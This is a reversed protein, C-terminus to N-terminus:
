LWSQGNGHMHRGLSREVYPLAHSPFWDVWLAQVRWMTARLDSDEDRFGLLHLFGHAVVFLFEASVSMSYEPAQRVVQGLSVLMQGEGRQWDAFTLIDTPANHAEGLYHKAWRVIEADSVLALIVRRYYRAFLAPVCGRLWARLVLELKGLRQGCGSCYVHLLYDTRHRRAQGMWRVGSLKQELGVAMGMGSDMMGTM